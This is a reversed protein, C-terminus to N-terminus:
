LLQISQPDRCVWTNAGSKQAIEKGDRGIATRIEEGSLVDMTKARGIADACLPQRFNKRCVAFDSNREVDAGSRIAIEDDVQEIGFETPHASRAGRDGCRALVDDGAKM